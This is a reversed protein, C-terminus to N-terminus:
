KRFCGYIYRWQGDGKAPDLKQQPVGDRWHAHCSRFIGGFLWWWTRPGLPTLFAIMLHSWFKAFRWFNIVCWIFVYLIWWNQTMKVFIMKCRFSGKFFCSFAGGTTKRHFFSWPEPPQKKPFSQSSDSAGFHLRFSGGRREEDKVWRGLNSRWSSIKLWETPYSLNIVHLDWMLWFIKWTTVNISESNEQEFQSVLWWCVFTLGDSDHRVCNLTIAPFFSFYKRFLPRIADFLKRTHKRCEVSRLSQNLHHGVAWKM